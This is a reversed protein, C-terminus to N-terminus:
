SLLNKSSVAAKSLNSWINGPARTRTAELKEQLTRLDKQEIPLAYRLIANGDTVANGPPLDALVPQTFFFSLASLVAVLTM